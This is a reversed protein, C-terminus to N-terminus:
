HRSYTLGVHLAHARTSYVVEDLGQSQIADGLALDTPQTLFEIGLHLAKARALELAGVRVNPDVGGKQFHALLVADHVHRHDDGHSEIRSSALALDEAHVDPRTLVAGEPEAKKAPQNGAAQGTDLQHGAIAVLPQFAGDGGHQLPGAPLAATGM